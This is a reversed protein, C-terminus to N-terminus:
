ALKIAYKEPNLTVEGVLEWNRTEGSWREPHKARASQYVIHRKELIVKDEDENVSDPHSSTSKAIAIGKTTGSFFDVM